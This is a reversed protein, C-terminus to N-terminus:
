VSEKTEGGELTETVVGECLPIAPHGSVPVLKRLDVGMAACGKRADSRCGAIMRALVVGQNLVEKTTELQEKSIELMQRSIALQEYYMKTQVDIGKFVLELRGACIEICTLARNLMHPKLKAIGPVFDLESLPAHYPEPEPEEEESVEELGLKRLMFATDLKWEMGAQVKMTSVMMVRDGEDGVKWDWDELFRCNAVESGDSAVGRVANAIYIGMRSNEGQVVQNLHDRPCVLYGGERAPVCRGKRAESLEDFEAPDVHYSFVPMHIANNKGTEVFPVYNREKWVTEPDDPSPMTGACATEFRIAAYMYVLFGGMNLIQLDAAEPGGGLRWYRDIEDDSKKQGNVTPRKRKKSSHKGSSSM